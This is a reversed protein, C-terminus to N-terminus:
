YDPCTQGNFCKWGSSTGDVNIQLCDLDTNYVMMGTRLDTAPIAVVQANTLRNVVFGKAKSELATWAGKRVMPWNGNDSGARGLATIGHKTDLITGSNVGNKYCVCYQDKVSANTSTGITQGIDSTAPLDTNDVAGKLNSPNTISNLNNGANNVLQPVGLANPSQSVINTPTDQTIGNYIVKIQGPNVAANLLNIQSSKVLESGEIADACGDNDSDLDLYDAIGDSDTDQIVCNNSFREVTLAAYQANTFNSLSLSFTGGNLGTVQMMKTALGDNETGYNVTSFANNFNNVSNTAVGNVVVESSPTEFSTFTTTGNDVIAAQKTSHAYAFIINRKLDAGAPQTPSKVNGTVALDAGTTTTQTGIFDVNDVNDYVVASIKFEDAANKPLNFATLDFSLDGNGTTFPITSNVGMAYVYTVTHWATTAATSPSATGRNYFLANIKQLSTGNFKVDPINALPYGTATSPNNSPNNMLYQSEWNDGIATPYHDRELTVYVRMLRKTASGTPIGLSLAPVGSSGSGKASATGLAILKVYNDCFGENIDLIGDNDDDLDLSDVIGDNDSDSTVYVIVTANKCNNPYSADCITYNVLYTGVPTGSAVTVMGTSTNINVGANTTSTQSIIVDSLPINATGNILDNSLISVTGTSGPALSQTDNKAVINAYAYLKDVFLGSDYSSDGADGIVIKFTYTGGPTLGGIAYSVKRSIGNFQVAVPKAGSNDNTVLKGGSITTPHGNNIYFTSMTGDFAAVPTANSGVGPIGYNVKNISTVQGNPLRGINQTGTIGPGSIFFGFADDYASGVYDPFEESGFQYAINLVSAKAGMKVTFQYSVVDKTATSDITVLQPDSFGTGGAPNNSSSINNNTSLDTAISGTGFYIGNAMELGAAVGGTYTAIQQNRVGNVLNGGSITLNAGQLSTNIQANTPGAVYTVPTQAFALVGLLIFLLSLVLESSKSTFNIKMM